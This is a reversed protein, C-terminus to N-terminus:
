WRILMWCMCRYKYMSFVCVMCVDKGWYRREGRLVEERGETGGGEVLVEERGEGGLVGERGELVGERGGTGGGEGLYGKGGRLAEERAYGGM